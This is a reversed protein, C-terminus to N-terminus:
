VEDAESIQGEIHAFRLFKRKLGALLEDIEKVRLLSCVGAYVIIGFMSTVVGQTLIGWARTMDVLNAVPVKLLQIILAMAIAAVSM